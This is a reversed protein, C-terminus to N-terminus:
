RSLRNKKEKQMYMFKKDDHNDNKIIISIVIITIILIMVVVNKEFYCVNKKQKTQTSASPSRYSIAVQLMRIAASVPKPWNNYRNITTM